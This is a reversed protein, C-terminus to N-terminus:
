SPPKSPPKPAFSLQKQTLLDVLQARQSETIRPDSKIKSELKSTERLNPAKNILRKLGNFAGLAMNQQSPAATKSTSKSSAKKKIGTTRSDRLTPDQKNQARWQKDLAKNAQDEKKKAAKRRKAEQAKADKEAKKIDKKNQKHASKIASEDSRLQKRAKELKKGVKAELQALQKHKKHYSAAAKLTKKDQSGETRTTVERDQPAEAIKYRIVDHHLQEFHSVKVRANDTKQRAKGEKGGLGTKQKSLKKARKDSSRKLSKYDKELGKLDRGLAKQRSKIEKASMPDAQASLLPEGEVSAIDYDALTKLSDTQSSSQQEFHPKVQDHPLATATYPGLKGSPLQADPKEAQRPQLAQVSGIHASSDIGKAM